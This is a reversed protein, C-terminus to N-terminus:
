RQWREAVWRFARQLSEVYRGMEFHSVGPLAEFRIPRGLKELDRAMRETPAFPMVQDERGHIVYTPITALMDIPDDGTSGAMPIAATFLDPHRSALFWTGRGGLSFGTVLVRRRDISYDHLVSDLLGMVAREAIPDTWARTPVDPAVIIARLGSAGNLGPMVIQQMFAGGYNPMREGGPHLALVLAVPRQPSYDRPVSIAYVMPARDPIPFTMRHVGPAAPQLLLLAPLVLTSVSKMM